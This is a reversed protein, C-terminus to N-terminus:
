HLARDQSRIDDTQPRYFSVLARELPVMGSGRRSGRGWFPPECECNGGMLVTQFKPCVLASLTIIHISGPTSPRYASHWRFLLGYIKKPFYGQAYDPLGLFTWPLWIYPANRPWRQSLVAKKVTSSECATKNDCSYLSLCSVLSLRATAQFGRSATYIKIYLWAARIPVEYPLYQSRCLYM